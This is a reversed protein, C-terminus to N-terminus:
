TNLFLFSGATIHKAKVVLLDLRTQQVVEQVHKFHLLFM